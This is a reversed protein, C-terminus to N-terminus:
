GGGAIDEVVHSVVAAIEDDSLQGEFPPMGGGGHRVQEEVRQPDTMATLSPGFDGEGPETTGTAM